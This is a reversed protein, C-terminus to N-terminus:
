FGFNQNMWFQGQANQYFGCAVVRLSPDSMTLYQGHRLFCGQQDAVCDQPPVPPVGEAWMQGLCGNLADQVSPYADARGAAVPYNPCSTQAPLGVCQNASGHVVQNLSDQQAGQDSCAEAQPMARALPQLGLSARYANIQAVCFDRADSYPDVGTEPVATGPPIAPDVGGPDLSQGFAPISGMPQQSFGTEGPRAGAYEENTRGRGGVGCHLCTKYFTGDPQCSQAGMMGTPCLCPRTEGVVCETAAGDGGCGATFLLGSLYGIMWGRKM